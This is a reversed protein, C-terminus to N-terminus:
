IVLLQDCSQPFQFLYIKLLSSIFKVVSLVIWLDKKLELKSSKQLKYKWECCYQVLKLISAYVTNQIYMPLLISLVILFLPEIDKAVKKSYIKATRYICVRCYAEERIKKKIKLQKAKELVTVNKKKKRQIHKRLCSIKWKLVKKKKKQM